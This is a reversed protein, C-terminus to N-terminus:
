NSYALKIATLLDSRWLCTYTYALRVEIVSDSSESYSHCRQAFGVKILLHSRKSCIRGKNALKAEKLLDLRVEIVLESRGSYSQGRYSLRVEM